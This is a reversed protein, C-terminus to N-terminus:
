QDLVCSMAFDKFWSYQDRPTAYKAGNGGFFTSFFIGVFGVPGQAATQDIAPLLPSVVATTMATSSTTTQLLPDTTLDIQAPALQIAWEHLADSPLGINVIMPPQPASTPAPVPLLLPVEMTRANLLGPLLPPLLTSLIPGLGLPDGNGNTNSTSPSASSSASTSVANPAPGRYYIDERWIKREGNVYLAFGGDQRGPTNLRVVQTVTTWGGALWSFMGRGVSFGYEADCFSGRANCLAATQKDKPAYLYLEGAGQQRWMLRTSFCDTAADGGSCSPRGGYLGPLKGCNVWDFDVPFFVSYSLTAVKARTLDLPTAYFQAGGVPKAAPNVSGKPYKLQFVTSDNDWPMYPDRNSDSNSNSPPSEGIPMPLLAPFLPDSNTTAPTPATATAPIGTVLEFNDKGGTVFYSVNFASLDTMNAPANWTADPAPATSSPRTTSTPSPSSAPSFVTVTDTVTSPIALVIETTTTPPETVTQISTVTDTLVVGSIWAASQLVDISPIPYYYILGPEESTAIPALALAPSPSSPLEFTQQPDFVLTPDLATTLLSDTSGGPDAGFIPPAFLPVTSDDEPVPVSFVLSCLLSLALTSLWVM